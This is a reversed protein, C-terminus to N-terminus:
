RRAGTNAAMAREALAVVRTANNAWTLGKEDVTRRAQAGLRTRLAGDEALRLIAANMADPSHEDFLLADHGDTVIERINAMDPAVVARGLYMYEFLKLPSAYETIGPQLAVDFAAVHRAVADREVVGTITFRHAVGKARAHTELDARAPGDGVILLHLNLRDGHLAVFDIVRDLRHWARIFGTFGLV